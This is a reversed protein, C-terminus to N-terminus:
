RLLTVHGMSRHTEGNIDKVVIVWVYVDQQVISIGDKDKGDWPKGSDTYYIEEGWRNYIWLYMKEWNIGTGKPIFEDNVGDK